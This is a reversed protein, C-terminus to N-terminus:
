GYVVRVLGGAGGGSSDRGYDYAGGGGGGPFEGNGAPFIQSVNAGAYYFSGVGGAGQGVNGEFGVSAGGRAPSTATSYYASQGDQGNGDGIGTGCEGGGSGNYSAYGQFDPSGHGGYGIAESGTLLATQHTITGDNKGGPARCIIVSASTFYSDGGDTSTAQGVTVTYSGSQLTKRTVAYAGGSGGNGTISGHGGAGVCTITVLVSSTLNFTGSTTFLQTISM